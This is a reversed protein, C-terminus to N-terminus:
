KGLRLERDAQPSRRGGKDRNEQKVDKERPGKGSNGSPGRQGGDVQIDTPVKDISDDDANNIDVFKGKAQGHKEGTVPTNGGGMRQPGWSAASGTSRGLDLGQRRTGAGTLRDACKEGPGESSNGGETRGLGGWDNGGKESVNGEDPNVNKKAM